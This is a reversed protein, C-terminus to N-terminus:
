QEWCCWVGSPLPLPPKEGPRLDKAGHSDSMPLNQPEEGCGRRSVPDRRCCLCLLLATHEARGALVGPVRATSAGRVAIRLREQCVPDTGGRGVALEGRGPRTSRWILTNLSVRSANVYCVAEAVLTPKGRFQEYLLHFCASVSAEGSCRDRTGARRPLGSACLM